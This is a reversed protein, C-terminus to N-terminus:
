AIIYNDTILRGKLFASQSPSVINPLIGKLRNAIVKSIIKCLVNYLSIPRYDSGSSAQDKKPILVIFSRTIKGLPFKYKFNKQVINM